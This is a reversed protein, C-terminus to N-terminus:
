PGGFWRERTRRVLAGFLNTYDDTWPRVGHADLPRWRLDRAFPALGADSRAVIVADESSEWLTPLIPDAIHSQFLARGGAALAVAQAPNALDLNRNSLHLIIVGDPKLKALYM